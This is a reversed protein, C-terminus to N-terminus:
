PIASGHLRQEFSHTTTKYDSNAEAKAKAISERVFNPSERPRFDLSWKRPGEGYKTYIQTNARANLPLSSSAPQSTWMRSERVKRM